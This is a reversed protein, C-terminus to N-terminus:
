RPLVLCIINKQWYDTDLIEMCYETVLKITYEESYKAM